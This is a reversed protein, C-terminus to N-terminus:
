PWLDGESIIQRVKHDANQGNSFEGGQFTKLELQELFVFVMKRSESFLRIKLIIKLLYPFNEFKFQFFLTPEIIFFNCM